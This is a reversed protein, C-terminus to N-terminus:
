RSRGATGVLSRPVYGARTMCADFVAAAGRPNGAVQAEQQRCQQEIEPSVMGTPSVYETRRPPSACNTLVIGFAVMAAIREM